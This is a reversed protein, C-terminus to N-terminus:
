GSPLVWALKRWQFFLRQQLTLTACMFLWALSPSDSGFM